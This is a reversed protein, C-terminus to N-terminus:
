EVSILANDILRTSGYRAALAVLVSSSMIVDTERFNEPDIFAVYDVSPSGHERIMKLMESQLSRVNRAGGKIENEAYKLSAYLIPANSREKPSLYVNRSSLALGDSERVIPATEIMVDFNLDRVMKKVIFAQQADKQGFVAIHPKCINFLKAVITTVGRFHTPRIKGELIHSADQEEVYTSCGPSYMEEVEPNFLFEVGAKMALNQDREFDRPYRSFDENPGFQTPNVFISIIVADCMRKAREILQLHGDHLYGMTPVLGIKRGLARLHDAEHQMELVSKVVHM